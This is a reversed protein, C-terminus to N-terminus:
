EELKHVLPTDDRGSPFLLLEVARVRGCSLCTHQERGYFILVLMKLKSATQQLHTSDRFLDLLYIFEGKKQQENKQTKIVANTRMRM